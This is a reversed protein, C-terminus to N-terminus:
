LTAFGFDLLRKADSYMDPSDLVVAIL